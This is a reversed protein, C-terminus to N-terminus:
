GNEVRRGFHQTQKKELDRKGLCKRWVCDVAHPNHKIHWSDLAAEDDVWAHNIVGKPVDKKTEAQREGRERGTAVGERV